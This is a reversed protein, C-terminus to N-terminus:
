RLAFAANSTNSMVLWLVNTSIFPQTCSSCRYTLFPHFSFTNLNCGRMQELIVSVNHLWHNQRHNSIFVIQFCLSGHGPLLCEEVRRWYTARIELRGCYITAFADLLYENRRGSSQQLQRIVTRTWRYFSVIWNVWQQVKVFQTAKM